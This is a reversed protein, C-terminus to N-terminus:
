LVFTNTTCKQALLESKMGFVLLDHCKQLQILISLPLAQVDM